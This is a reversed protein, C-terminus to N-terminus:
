FSLRKIQRTTDEHSESCDQAVRDLKSDLQILRLDVKDIRTIITETQNRSSIRRDFHVFLAGAIVAFTTNTPLTKITALM